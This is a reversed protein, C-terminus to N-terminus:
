NEDLITQITVLKSETHLQMCYDDRISCVLYRVNSSNSASTCFIKWFQLLYLPSSESQPFTKHKNCISQLQMEFSFHM